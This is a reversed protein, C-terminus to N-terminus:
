KDLHAVIDALAEKKIRASFGLVIQKAEYKGSIRGRNYTDKLILDVEKQSYIPFTDYGTDGVTKEKKM